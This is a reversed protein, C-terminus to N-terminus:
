SKDSSPTPTEESENTFFKEIRERVPAPIAVASLKGAPEDRRACIATSTGRAVEAWEGGVRRHFVCEYTITRASMKAVSLRVQVEDEFRLPAAFRCGVEGRPWCVTEGDTEAHISLGLHRLFDCEAAEMYRFFNSFHVIGALDTEHFEVRRNHIFERPM